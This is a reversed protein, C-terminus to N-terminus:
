LSRLIDEIEKVARSVQDNIVRYQYRDALSLEYVSAALRKRITEEDETARGILRHELEERSPPLIFISVVDERSEMVKQAGQVEIELVVDYGADLEEQVKRSTEYEQMSPEPNMHFHRRMDIIYQEYKKAVELINM